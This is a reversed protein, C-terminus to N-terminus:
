GPDPTCGALFARVLPVTLDARLFADFHGCEPLEVIHATPVQDATHRIASLQPDRDGAILLLPVSCSALADLVSERYDLALTLAALALPDAAQM